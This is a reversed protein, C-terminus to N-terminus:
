EVEWEVVYETPSTFYGEYPGSKGMNGDFEGTAHVTKWDGEFTTNPRGDENLATNVKGSWKVIEKASGKTFTTYGQHEGNGNTIDVYDRNLVKSGDKSGGEATGHSEGLYIIHGQQDGVPIPQNQTYKMTFSGSDAWGAGAFAMLMAGILATQKITITKKM